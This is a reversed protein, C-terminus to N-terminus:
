LTHLSVLVAIIGRHKEEVLDCIVKNDFYEVQEWQLLLDSMVGSLGACVCVRWVCVSVTQVCAHVHVHVKCLILIIITCAM